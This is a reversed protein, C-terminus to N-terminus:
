FYFNGCLRYNNNMILYKDTYGAISHIFGNAWEGKKKLTEDDLTLQESEEVLFGNNELIEKAEDLKM